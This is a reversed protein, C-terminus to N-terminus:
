RMNSHGIRNVWQNFNSRKTTFRVILERNHKINGCTVVSSIFVNYMPLVIWKFYPEAWITSREIQQLWYAYWFNRWTVGLCIKPILSHLIFINNIFSGLVQAHFIEKVWIVLAKISKLKLGSHWHEKIYM